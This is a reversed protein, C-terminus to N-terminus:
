LTHEVDAEGCADRKQSSDCEDNVSERAAKSIADFIRNTLPMQKFINLEYDHNKSLIFM